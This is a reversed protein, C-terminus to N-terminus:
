EIYSSYYEEEGPNLQSPPPPTSLNSPPPAISRASTTSVSTSNAPSQTKNSNNITKIKECFMKGSIYFQTYHVFAPLLPIISCVINLILAVIINVFFGVGVLKWFYKSFSIGVKNCISSYMHWLIIAYIIVGFGFEPFMLLLSGVFAHTKITKFINKENDKFMKEGIYGSITGEFM